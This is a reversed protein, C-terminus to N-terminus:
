KLLMMRNVQEFREHGVMVTMRAFYVGSPAVLQNKLRGNWETEHSGAPLSGDILTAIKDGRINYVALQVQADASLDFFIRTAPNFPNPYNPYMRFADPAAASESKEVGTPEHM